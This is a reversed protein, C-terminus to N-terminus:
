GNRQKQEPGDFYARALEADERIQAQLTEVSDFRHEPRQFRLFDLRIKKGYLMLKKDLAYAEVTVQGEPLTPHRGVNVVAPYSKGEVAMWCVYVGFAPLVKNRPIHVNATPFGMTRGIHKGDMVRGALTYPHGLLRNAESVKGDEILKRIRTSSVPEGDLRYEDVVVTQVGNERGWAKLTEGNGSGKAGYTYNYGCIVAAPAFVRQIQRLFEEPPTMAEERTFTLVDLEDVGEAAMLAAREPLTSLIPPAKAPALVCLPHPDFTVAHLPLQHQQALKNGAELLQRHGRHVGDFMGLVLICPGASVPDRLIKM